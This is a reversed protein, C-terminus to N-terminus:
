AAKRAKVYLDVARRVDDRWDHMKLGFVRETKECDLPTYLPRLAYGPMPAFTVPTLRPRRETYPAYADMVTQLFELRTAPPTGCIHFTGFGDAKGGLIATAIALLDAALADASTPSSIQNSAAKIEDKEDIQRLLRTLVNDGEGSFVYSTRVITHWHTGHRAAEEGMMKSDGYFNVPAMQDEPRYPRDTDKGDFVYDTSIHILPANLETCFAAMTSVAEFNVLRATDRDSECADVNTIAAANIVIDPASERFAHALAAPDTLDCDARRPAYLRWNDPVRQNTLAKGLQGHGGFILINKTVM